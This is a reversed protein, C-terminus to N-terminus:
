EAPRFWRTAAALALATWLTLAALAPVPVEGGGLAGRLVEGLAGTPLWAAGPVALSPEGGVPLVLGGVAAFAVWLLNAVALVAEARLRAALLLGLSTFCVSGLLWALLAAPIGSPDPQWGVATALASLLLLQIAQVAFTALVKGLVIGRPGLPTTALQRLVGWRRDFATAIAMSTFSSSVIALALVGPAVVAIRPAGGTPLDVVDAVGLGLMALAPLVVAVLLQEGNRLLGVVEFQAYALVRSASGTRSSPQATTRQESAVPQEAM